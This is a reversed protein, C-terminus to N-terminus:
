FERIDRTKWVGADRSPPADSAVNGHLLMPILIARFDLEWARAHSNMGSPFGVLLGTHMGVAFWPSSSISMRILFTTGM